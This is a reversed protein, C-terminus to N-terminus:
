INSLIMETAGEDPIEKTPWFKVSQLPVDTKARSEIIKELLPTIEDKEKERIWRRYRVGFVKLKPLLPAVLQSSSAGNPHASGSAPGSSSAGKLKRAVMHNFFKKGLGDPRVLGLVLEELDPLQQLANILYQDHCQTDLHLVRPTLWKPTASEGWVSALQTSGRPKNWAENRVVLKDLKPLRFESMPEILHDDYTFQTCVPLDVGGGAQLTEPHHPWVITCDELAPFTRGSMWQVSVIKISMRKLTRVIPLDMERPYSPLHLRYAELVELNEFYPLIDAPDRMERVDVKFYRLRSFFHQYCPSSLSWIVNPTEIEVHILKETSTKTLTHLFQSFPGSMECPGTIKLSELKELPQEFTMTSGGQTAGIVDSEGPFGVLTLARWRPMTKLALAIGNYLGVRGKFGNSSHTTGNTNIEVELSVQKTREAVFEVYEPATSPRLKLHCWVRAMGLITARWSRCIQIMHFPNQGHHTITITFIEALLEIPLRRIPALFSQSKSNEQELFSIRKQIDSVEAQVSEQALSMRATYETWLRAMERQIECINAHLHDLAPRLTELEKEQLNLLHKQHEAAINNLSTIQATRIKITEKTRHAEM